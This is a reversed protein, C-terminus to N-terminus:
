AGYNDIIVVNVSQNVHWENWLFCISNVRSAIAKLSDNYFWLYKEPEALFCTLGIQNLVLERGTIVDWTAFTLACAENSM